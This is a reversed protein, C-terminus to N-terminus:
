PTGSTRFSQAPGNTRGASNSAVARYYYTTGESLGTLHEEFVFASAGDGAAKPATSLAAAFTATTGYEVWATTALRNATVTGGTTITHATILSATRTEVKPASGAVVVAPTTANAEAPRDSCRSEICSRVHYSYLTAPALGTHRYTTTNASVTAVANWVTSSGTRSEIQFGTENNSNDQWGLNVEYASAASAVLATPATPTTASALTQAPNLADGTLDGSSSCAVSLIAILAVASTTRHGAM